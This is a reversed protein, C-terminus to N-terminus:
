RTEVISQLRRRDGWFAMPEHSPYPYYGINLAINWGNEKLWNEVLRRVSVPQGSCLNIVGIDRNRLALEAILRAVETAPLYDRLQEGGSMNFVMDGRQVASKLQPYLSNAPQGEGYVYFLRAWTLAFPKEVKLFELERRLVDKALGYPNTPISVMDESLQGSRNGYEFCTGTVVLAQLGSNIMTKLFDYHKPLEKEFHHLSEYNPLGAWALHILIDPRGLREFCDRGDHEIDLEVITVNKNIDDLALPNRVIGVLEIELKSLEAMVHRGIFGGAGTVAIRM